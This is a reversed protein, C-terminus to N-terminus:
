FFSVLPLNLAEPVVRDLPYLRDVNEATVLEHRTYVAPPVPRGQLIAQALRIVEDGYREPFYAVSGILPSGRRRLEMRAELTANQGMVACLQGRGAEEFARVAGLASPDNHALVATRQPPRYRLYRRVREFTREMCGAGDLETTPLQESFPLIERLGALMGSIRLKPLPGAKEEVITLVAELQGSWRQAIWKGLARGGMLGAQYNNAGFFVAGPHPIEIAIVPIRAELFRAAILPAVREHTQFEIVLEVRERILREADRLAAKPSRRSNFVLLEMGAEEAARQVSETVARSFPTDTGRTAFGIRHRPYEVIRVRSRFRNKGIREIMGAHELARLLRSATAKHLATRAALETLRLAEGPELARLLACAREVSQVHGPKRKEAPNM